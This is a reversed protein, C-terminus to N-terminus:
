KPRLDFAAMERTNRVLLRGGAIVPHNWTKGEIAKFRATEEYREPTAKVMALDGDESLVMLRDGALMIQGYGYRGGKWKLEGSSADLCALITEDLGYIYGQHLVSSTFKNKMRNTEWVMRPVLRDGARTLELAVAGHGYGASIFIRDNGLMLPQAVSIGNFNVWPHEWLLRGDDVTLAAVRNASVVVIQRVGALTVVMPSTYAQADDLSSWVPAGTTENYAVVSKGGSGGPLVIVKDDVILPAGAMGWTLNAANNETLINHRWVLAGTEAKLCRLEGAAGLAYIRGAHYTPTARPGDGGMTEVFASDWGHTWLERGTEVDYAAVVEQHRRQEITFARGDAVVFSAYGLGIPQRWLVPLGSEPWDTRIATEDYRGDRNPGRFDPWYGQRRTYAIGGGPVATATAPHVSPTVDPSAEPAKVEDADRATPEAQQRQRARHAELAAYDPQRSLFRPIFGSGDFALRLGAFKYLGAAAIVLVAAFIAAKKLM